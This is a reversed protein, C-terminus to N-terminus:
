LKTRLARVFIVVRCSEPSDQFPAERSFIRHPFYQFDRSRIRFWFVFVSCGWLACIVFTLDFDVKAASINRGSPTYLSSALKPVLRREIESYKRGRTQAQLKKFGPHKPRFRPLDPNGWAAVGLETFRFPYIKRSFAGFAFHRFFRCFTGFNPPDGM